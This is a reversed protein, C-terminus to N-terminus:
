RAWRGTTSNRRTRSWPWLRPRPKWPSRSPKADPKRSSRRPRPALGGLVPNGEGRVKRRLAEKLPVPFDMKSLHELSGTPHSDAPQQRDARAAILRQRYAGMAPSDGGRAPFVYEQLDSFDIDECGRRHVIYRVVTGHDEPPLFLAALPVGLAAAIQMVEDADFVKTRKSEWSREAASVSAASWGLLKGIKRQDIGAARRFFGLNYAVLQSISM